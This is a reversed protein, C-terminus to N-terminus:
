LNRITHRGYWVSYVNSLCLLVSYLLLSYFFKDLLYFGTVFSFFTTILFLMQIKVYDKQKEMILFINSLPSSILGACCAFSLIQTVVGATKWKDGFFLSFVLPSLCVILAFSILAIKSLLYLTRKYYKKFEIKDNYYMISAEQKFVDGVSKAILGSPLALCQNALSYYGTYKIGFLYTIMFSPLAAALNDIGSGLVMYRPFDIYRLAVGKMSKFNICRFLKYNTNIINVVYYCCQLYRAAVLSYVLTLVNIDSLFMHLGLGIGLFFVPFLCLGISIKKYERERVLWMYVSQYCSLCIVYFPILFYGKLTTTNEILSSNMLWFFTIIIFLTLSVILGLSMSLTLLSLAKYRYKPLVIALEYRGTAFVAIVSTASLFTQYLGFSEPLFVRSLTFFCIVNLIQSLTSGSLMVAINKHIRNKIFKM